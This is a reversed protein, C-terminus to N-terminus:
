TVKCRKGADAVHRRPEIEYVLKDIFQCSTKSVRGGVLMDGTDPLDTEEQLSGRDPALPLSSPRELPPAFGFGLYRIQAASSTRWPALRESVPLKPDAM